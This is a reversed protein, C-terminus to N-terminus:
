KTPNARKIVIVNQAQPRTHNALPRTPIDAFNQSSRTINGTISNIITQRAIPIIGRIQRGGPKILINTVILAHSSAKTGNAHNTIKDSLSLSYM